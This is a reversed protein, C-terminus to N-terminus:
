GVRGFLIESFRFQCYNIGSPWEGHKLQNWKRLRAKVERNRQHLLQTLERSKEEREHREKFQQIVVDKGSPLHQM